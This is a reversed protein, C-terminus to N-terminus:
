RLRLTFVRDEPVLRVEVADDSVRVIRYVEAVLEGQRAHMVGRDGALVAVRGAAGATTATGVGILELRPWAPGAADPLTERLGVADRRVAGSWAGAQDDSTARTGFPDRGRSAPMVALREVLRHLAVRPAEPAAPAVRRSAGEPQAPLAPVRIQVWWLVAMLTLLLAALLGKSTVTRMTGYSARLGM